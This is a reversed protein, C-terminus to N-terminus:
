RHHKYHAMKFLVPHHFARHMWYICTDSFLVFLPYQAVEKWASGTGFAYIRALGRVQAVSVPVTLVNLVLMVWLSAAIESRIQHSRFKPPTRSPSTSAFTTASPASSSTSCRAPSGPQSSYASALSQRWVGHRKWPGPNTTLHCLRQKNVLSSSSDAGNACITEALQFASSYVGDLLVPDLYNLVVDM